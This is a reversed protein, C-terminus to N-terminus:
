PVPAMRVGHCERAIHAACREGRFGLKTVVASHVHLCRGQRGMGLISATGASGNEMVRLVKLAVRGLGMRHLGM